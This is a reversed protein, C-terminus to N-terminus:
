PRTAQIREPGRLDLDQLDVDALAAILGATVTVHIRPGIADLHHGAIHELRTEAEELVGADRPEVDRSACRLQMGVEPLDHDAGRGETGLHHM